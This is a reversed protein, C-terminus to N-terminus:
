RLEKYYEIDTILKDSLKDELNGKEFDFASNWNDHLKKEADSIEEAYKEIHAPTDKLYQNLLAESQDYFEKENILQQDLQDELMSLKKKYEELWADNSSSSGSSSTTPNAVAGLGGSQVKNRVDSILKLKTELNSLVTNIQDDTAGQSQAGSIAANLDRIASAGVTAEAITNALEQNYGALDDIANTFAAANDEVAKKEDQLALTGLESIAQQLAQAESEDLRQNALAVMAQENLQLQGNEDILCALYQPELELLTQLQDFTLYGTENYAEVIDTLSSYASQLSDLGDNLNDLEISAKQAQIINNALMQGFKSDIDIGAGSLISEAYKRSIDEIANGLLELSNSQGDIFEWNLSGDMDSVASTISQISSLIDSSSIDLNMLKAYSDYASQVSSQFKDLSEKSSTLQDFLKKASQETKAIETDTDEPFFSSFDNILFDKLVKQFEEGAGSASLISAEMAKFEEETRPIGNQWEYQLLLAQYQQETYNKVSESLSNITTNISKYIDSSMLFDANEDTALRDRAEILDYYYELVANMDNRDEDWGVPEWEIGNSSMDEYKALIDQVAELAAVHEEIATMQENKAITIQSGDWWANYTKDKLAEEAAKAGIKATAYQSELEAKTAEKLAETYNNQGATLGELADAKNGLAKTIDQVVQKFDDEQQSTKDTISSLKSYQIYLENLSDAEEKASTAADMNAQRTERINEKYESIKASVAGIITSLTMIAIGVPNSIFALRISNGLGKVAASFSFTNITAAKQATSQANTAQTLGMEELKAKAISKELGMLRLIRIRDENSLAKNSLVLKLQAENLSKSAIAINKLSSFRKALNSNPDNPISNTFQLAKGFNSAQLASAKFATSLTTLAKVAGIAIFSKLTSEILGLSNLLELVSSGTDLIAKTTEGNFVAQYTEIMNAKFNNLSAISSELYKDYEEQASGTSELSRQYIEQAEAMNNLVASIASARHKGSILELLASADVDSMQQYVKSLDVFIDYISRFTEGDAELIQVGGKGDINTLDAIKEQLKSVSTYVGDTEEGMQELEVKAGRIRLAATRLALAMSDADQFQRNGASLLSVFEQVSTNSDAFVSGVTQVSEAIEETTIACTNGLENYLDILVKAKDIVDDYGSITDYAQVGSILAKASDSASMDGVNSLITSQETLKNSTTLDYGSKSFETAGEILAQQTTALEKAKRTCQELYEPYDGRTLASQVKVLNTFAQDLNLSERWAQRLQQSLLMVFGTGSFLEMARKFTKKLTDGLTLGALNNARLESRMASLQMRLNRIEKNSTALKANDLLTNYKSAMNADKMMKSNQQAFYQIDALLKSKKINFSADLKIKNKNAVAQAQKTAQQVSANISKQNVKGTLSVTGTLSATDQKLQAKTKTKNLKGTLNVFFIDRLAKIDNKIQKITKPKDLTGTFPFKINFTKIDSNIQKKSRVKDLFATIKLIFDNQAM